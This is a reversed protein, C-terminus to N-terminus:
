GGIKEDKGDSPKGTSLKEYEEYTMSPDNITIKADKRWDILLNESALSRKNRKIYEAIRGKIQDLPAPKSESKEEVYIIHYGFQTKVPGVPTKLPANFAADEFPKAMQGRSFFGLDGGKQNPSESYKQVLAEFSVGPTTAEKFIQEAKKLVLDAKEQPDTESLKLLIHRARVMEPLTYFRTNQEYNKKIEEETPETINALKNILKDRQLDAVVTQMVQEETLNQQKLFLEFGKQGGMKEKYKELAEVRELRDVEFKENKAHQRFLEDDIMKRLISGRLDREIKESLPRGTHGFQEVARNHLTDLEKSDIGVGNVMAAFGETKTTNQAEPSKQCSSKCGSVLLGLLLLSLGIRNSRM